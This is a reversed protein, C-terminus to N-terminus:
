TWIFESGAKRITPLLVELSRANITRAEDIWIIDTGELSRISEINRELGWFLFDSGNSKHEITQGTVKFVDALGLDRIRREILEKSSDRISNQFQRACVIRKRSQAAKIVLYTATSWSKGSGRGGYLAKHRARQSCCRVV